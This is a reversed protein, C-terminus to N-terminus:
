DHASGIIGRATETLPRGTRRSEALLGLYAAGMDIGRQYALVGKAQEVLARATIAEHIRSTVQADALDTRVVVLTALDAIMQGVARAEEDPEEAAALFINLGGITRGQWHMPYAHVALYGAKAMAAGVTGWREVLDRAGTEVVTDDRRVAEVCPGADQQSQLVELGDAEHSSASLPELRGDAVSVMIAVAAAPYLQACNEVLTALVDATEERDVISAMTQSVARAVTMQSM